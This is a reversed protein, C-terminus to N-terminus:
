GAAIEDLTVSFGSEKESCAMGTECKRPTAAPPRQRPKQYPSDSSPPRHSTTSNQTLRAELAAVRKRLQILADHLSRVYSQVTTPTHEWDQPVFPFPWSTHPAETLPEM